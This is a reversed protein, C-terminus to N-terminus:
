AGATRRGLNSARAQAATSAAAAGSASAWCSSARPGSRMSTVPLLIGRVSTSVANGSWVMVRSSISRLPAVVGASTRSRTEAFTRPKLSRRDIKSESEAGPMELTFRRPM